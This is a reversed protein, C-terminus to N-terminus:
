KKKTAKGKAAVPAAKAVPANKEVDFSKSFKVKLTLDNVTPAKFGAKIYRHL